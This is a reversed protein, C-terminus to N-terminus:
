GGGNRRKMMELRFEARTLKEALAYGEPYKYERQGVEGM